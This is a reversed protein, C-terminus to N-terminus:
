YGNVSIMVEADRFHLLELLLEQLTGRVSLDTGILVVIEVGVRRSDM